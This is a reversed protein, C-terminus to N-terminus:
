SGVPMSCGIMLVSRRPSSQTCVVLMGNEDTYLGSLRDISATLGTREQLVRLAAQEPPQGWPVAVAPLAWGEGERVLAVRQGRMGIAAAQVYQEQLSSGTPRRREAKRGKAM